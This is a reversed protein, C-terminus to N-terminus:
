FITVFTTSLQDQLRSRKVAFRTFRIRSLRTLVWVGPMMVSSGVFAADSPAADCREDLGALDIAYLGEGTELGGQGRNGVSM